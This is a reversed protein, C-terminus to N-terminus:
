DIFHVRGFNKELVYNSYKVNRVKGNGDIPALQLPRERNLDIGVVAKLVTRKGRSHNERQNEAPYTFWCLALPEDGDGIGCGDHDAVFAAVKAARAKNSEAGKVPKDTPRTFGNAAKKKAPAKSAAKKKATKKVPAAQSPADTEVQADTGLLKAMLGMLAQREASNLNSM